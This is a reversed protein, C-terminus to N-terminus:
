TRSARSVRRPLMATGSHSRWLAASGAIGAFVGYSAPKIPIDAARGNISWRALRVRLAEFEDSLTIGLGGGIVIVEPELLDVIDGLWVALLDIEEAVCQTAIPDGQKWKNVVEEAYFASGDSLRESMRRALAPGSALSELCGRKGCACDVKGHMDVTMHGGEAALGSRGHYVQRDFIIATGVGTGITVYFVSGFAAGAGWIAEALGAANADNDLRTPLGYKREVLERLPFDTWCPINPTALVIGTRPDLPGPSSVGIHSVFRGDEANLAQDIAQYVCGLAEAAGHKSDMPVRVKHLIEGSSTVVGAAVKTGGIDVGLVFEAAM